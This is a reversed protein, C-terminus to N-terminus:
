ARLWTSSPVDWGEWRKSWGRVLEGGLGGDAEGEEVPGGAGVELQEGGIVAVDVAEDGDAAVAVCTVDVAVWGCAPGTYNVRGRVEVAGVVEAADLFEGLDQEGLAGALDM